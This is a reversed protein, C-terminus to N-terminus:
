GAVPDYFYRDEVMAQPQVFARQAWVLEPRRYQADDYQIRKRAEDRWTKMKGFWAERTASNKPGSIIEGGVHLAADEAAGTNQSLSMCCLIVAARFLKM